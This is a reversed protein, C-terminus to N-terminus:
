RAGDPATFDLDRAVFVSVSRGPPVRLTPTIDNTQSPVTSAVRSGAGPLAVIVPSRSNRAALTIGLDLASQLIAGSFREFFHSNVDAKVGGRGVPDAAPSGIAITVGDPRILRSWLIVARKQGRETDAGYEGILRSGRPILVRTGDFGRIDKQVLARAFGPSTSDFGTELVAPILTGQPVTTARNALIAARARTTSLGQRKNDTKKDADESAEDSQEPAAAASSDVVLAPGSVSRPPQQPQVPAISAQPAEDTQVPATTPTGSRQEPVPIISSTAAPMPAPIIDPSPSTPESPEIAPPLYLPPLASAVPVDSTSVATTPSSLNNRRAELVGFLGLSGAAALIAIGKGSLGTRPRQVIPRMDREGEPELALRPDAAKNRPVDNVPASM